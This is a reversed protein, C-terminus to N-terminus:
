RAYRLLGQQSSGVKLNLNLSKNARPLYSSTLYICTVFFAVYSSPCVNEIQYTAELKNGKANQVFKMDIEDSKENNDDSHVRMFSSGVDLASRFLITEDFSLDSDSM